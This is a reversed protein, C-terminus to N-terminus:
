RSEHDPNPADADYDRVKARVAVVLGQTKSAGSASTQTATPPVIKKSSYAM